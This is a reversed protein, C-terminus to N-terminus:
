GGGRKSHFCGTALVLSDSTPTGNNWQGSRDSATTGSVDPGNFSWLGTLTANQSAQETVGAEVCGTWGSGLGICAVLM